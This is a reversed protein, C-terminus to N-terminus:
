EAEKHLWKVFDVKILIKDHREVIERVRVQMPAEQLDDIFYEGEYIEAPTPDKLHSYIEKFYSHTQVLQDLRELGMTGTAEIGLDLEVRNEGVSVAKGELLDNVKVESVSKPHSVTQPLPPSKSKPAPKSVSTPAPTHAVSAGVVGAPDPLVPRDKYENEKRRGHEIELYRTKEKDPGPWSLLFLLMQIRPVDQLSEASGTNLIPDRLVWQEFATTANQQVDDVKTNEDGVAWDGKTFLQTYRAQRDTIHLETEVKVSGLGLPKAMGLKLRYDDDAAVDLLWLLAGLEVDSLNEFYIRFNFRIGPRVPKIVTHQTDGEPLSTAGRFEDAEIFDRDVDDKHWYLKHGRIVTEEEPKSGYHALSRKDDTTQVLYHQFTTPKPSALIKPVITPNDPDFWIDNAGQELIADTVCVRGALAVDRTIEKGEEVYGFIAEALDTQDPDRLRDPVFDQPTAAQPPSSTPLWAPVRFNPCHGFAVAKGHKEVYFVPRGEILCGMKSDFPAEKQFDTLADLYDEVAQASVPILGARTERELVLAHNKRPSSAASGSEAMNGSCVLVGKYKSEDKESSINIVRVYQGRKGQGIETDFSVEHYQPKYEDDTFRILDPIADKPIQKEKVKLYYGKEPLGLDSPRQAPRISWQENHRELYGARVDRGYKGLVNQYPSALPDKKPAAVARFTIKAKDTVPQVKSYSVIEVLSRLMGRLSSGPIVPMMTDPNTYFFDPLDKAEKDGVQEPLLGCRVYLPSSTTLDCDLWGTHRDSYYADQPLLAKARL